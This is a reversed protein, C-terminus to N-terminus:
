GSTPGAYDSPNGGFLGAPGATGNDVQNTIASPGAPTTVESWLNSGWDTFSSWWGSLTNWLFYLLLGLLALVIIAVILWIFPTLDLPQTTVM